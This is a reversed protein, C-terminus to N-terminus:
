PAVWQVSVPLVVSDKVGRGTFVLRHNWTTPATPEVHSLEVKIEWWELPPSGAKSPHGLRVIWPGREAVSLDPARDGALEVPISLIATREASRGLPRRGWDIASPTMRITRPDSSATINFTVVIPIEPVNRDSSQLVIQRRNAGTALRDRQLVATVSGKTKSPISNSGEIAKFCSCCTSRGTVSLPRTSVNNIPIRVKVDGSSFPIDGLGIERVPFTTELSNKLSEPDNDIVLFHGSARSLVSDSHALSRSVTRVPLGGDLIIFDSGSPVVVVYHGIDVGGVNRHLRLIAASSLSSFIAETNPAKMAKTPLYYRSLLDRLEELSVLKSYDSGLKLQDVVSEFDVTVGEWALTMYAVELGCNIRRLTQPSSQPTGGPDGVPPSNVSPRSSAQAHPQSALLCSGTVALVIAGINVAKSRNASAKFRSIIFSVILFVAGASLGIAYPVWARSPEPPLPVTVVPQTAARNAAEVAAARAEGLRQDMKQRYETGDPAVRYVENRIGDTVSFTAPIEPLWSSDTVSPDNVIVEESTSTIRTFGQSRDPGMGERVLISKRPYWLGPAAEVVDLVEGVRVSLVKGTDPHKTRAFEVKRIVFGRDPEVWYIPLNGNTNFDIRLLRVGPMLKLDWSLEPHRDLRQLEKLGSLLGGGFIDGGFNPDLPGHFMMENVLRAGPSGQIVATQVPLERATDDDPSRLHKMSHTVLIQVTGDWGQSERQTIWPTRGSRWEIVDREIDVRFRSAPKGDVLLKSALVPGQVLPTWPGDESAGFERDLRAGSISVHLIKSNRSEIERIISDLSPVPNLATEASLHTLLLQCLVAFILFPLRILPLM